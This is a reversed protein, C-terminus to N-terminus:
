IKPTFQNADHGRIAGNLVDKGTIERGSDVRWEGDIQDEEFQREAEADLHAQEAHQPHKEPGIEVFLHLLIEPAPPVTAAKM